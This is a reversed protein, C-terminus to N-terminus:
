LVKMALKEFEEDLKRWIKEIKEFSKIMSSM